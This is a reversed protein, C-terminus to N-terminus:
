ILLPMVFDKVCDKIKLSTATDLIDVSTAGLHVFPKIEDSLYRKIVNVLARINHQTKEEEKYVEEPDIKGILTDAELLYKEPNKMNLKIHTKILAIEAKVCYKISAEESLYKELKEFLARNALFYRHDLPSINKFISKTEM